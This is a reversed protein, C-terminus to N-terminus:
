SALMRLQARARAPGGTATRSALGAEIHGILASSTIPKRLLTFSHSNELAGREGAYGTLLFCPLGPCQERVRRITEIGNMGPMSLDCVLADPAGGTAIAALAAEGSAAPTVHFGAGELQEAVTERVLDDDDVVLIRANVASPARQGVPEVPRPLGDAAAQRLWLTVVTGAGPASEITMGGGSQEAFGKVLALGLGTGQGPPKTTFFPEVVRTLTAADMGCGIDAVAIRVYAGRALGAPHTAMDAVLEPGASLTLVGGGPMADRANTGLNVLATELQGRDALLPPLTEAFATRVTISSGLTYTLVEALGELVEATPMAEVRLEDSRAFALLRKIISSGREAAAITSRTLRTVKERNDPHQEILMAAGAVAQLINNFDHAIGGALGGLAQLKQAQALRAELARRETMDRSAGVLREVRGTVPHRLPVIWTDILRAGHATDFRTEFQIPVGRAAEVYREVVGGAVAPPLVAEPQRGPCAAAPIGYIREVAANVAEFIFRGDPVVQVVFVADEANNFWARFRAESAELAATREVLAQTREAVRLELVANAHQLQLKSVSLENTRDAVQRQLERQRRRLIATWARLLAALALVVGAGGAVRVWTTQYWAPLVRIALTTEPESWVGDRNSGRLRLTYDGPPLNTYIAVRHAADADVWDPDFGDLRYRYRNRAPASFDLATFEVALSDATPPVVLPGAVPTVPVPRGGIRAASFVVPPRYQWQTAAQPLVMTLGGLGGFVLEGSPLLTSSDAWYNTIALGDARQLARVTLSQPDIAALGTDTSAWIAGRQDMVLADIAANPLGEAVGIHRFMLRGAADRGQSVDLGNGTGVWLRGQRDNTFASIPGAVLAHPNAPDPMVQEVAGSVPDLISFGRRAGALIHGDPQVGLELIDPGTLRPETEYRLVKVQGAHDISLQWLGNDFVAMWVTGRSTRLSRIDAKESLQPVVLRTVHLGSPDALFLGGDTALLMGGAPSAAFGAVKRGPLGAARRGHVDLVAYGDGAYGTWLAGDPAAFVAEVSDGTLGGVRGKQGVFTMISRSPNYLSLGLNTGVWVLGSHDTYLSRISDSVLSNPTLPDHVIRQTAMTATDVEVIGHGDTGLWILNPAIETMALVNPASDGGGSPATAAIVAAAGRDAGIMFVGDQRTAVWLRGASDEMLRSVAPAAAGNLPVRAFSRGDDTSRALGRRTGIWLVGHRDRLVALVEEDPLGGVQGADDHHWKGSVLGTRDLRYLGTRSAVWLGGAGDDNIAWVYETGCKAGGLPVCVLREQAVDYRLVGSSATGAWLQDQQDRHLTTISVDRLGDPLNPEAPFDRFQYGDWRLLGADGGVWLFGRAAETIEFPILAQPQDVNQGVPTFVRDATARWPSDAQRTKTQAPSQAYSPLAFGAIGIAALLGIIARRLPEPWPRRL